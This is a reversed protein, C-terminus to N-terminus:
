ERTGMEPKRDRARWVIDWDDLELGEEMLEAIAKEIRGRVGSEEYGYGELSRALARVRIPNLPLVWGGRRRNETRTSDTTTRLIRIVTADLQQRERLFDLDM